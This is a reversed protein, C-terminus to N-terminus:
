QSPTLIFKVTNLLGVETGEVFSYWGGQGEHGFCDAVWFLFLDNGKGEMSVTLTSSFAVTSTKYPKTLPQGNEGNLIVM